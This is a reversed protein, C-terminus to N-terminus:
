TAAVHPPLFTNCGQLGMEFVRKLCRLLWDHGHTLPVVVVVVVMMMMMSVLCVVTACHGVHDIAGAEALSHCKAADGPDHM